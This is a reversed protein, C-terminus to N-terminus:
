PNRYAYIELLEDLRTKLNTGGLIYTNGAADRIRTGLPFDEELFTFISYDQRFGKKGQITILENGTQIIAAPIGSESVGQNTLPSLFDDIVNAPRTITIYTQLTPELRLNVTEILWPNNQYVNSGASYISAEALVTWKEGQGDVIYDKIKPKWTQKEMFFSRRFRSYVGQSPHHETRDTGTWAVRVSHTTANTGVVYYNLTAQYPFLNLLPSLDISM